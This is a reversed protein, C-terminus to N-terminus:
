DRQYNTTLDKLTVTIKIFNSIRKLHCKPCNFHRIANNYAYESCILDCFPCKYYIEKEIGRKNNGM